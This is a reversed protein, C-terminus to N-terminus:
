FAVLNNGIDLVEKRKLALHYNMTGIDVTQGNVWQLCPNKRHKAIIFLAEPINM